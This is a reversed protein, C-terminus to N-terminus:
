KFSSLDLNVQQVLNYYDPFSPILAVKKMSNDPKTTSEITLFLFLCHFHSSKEGM